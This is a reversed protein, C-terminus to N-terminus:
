RGLNAADVYVVLGTTSRDDDREGRVGREEDDLDHAAEQEARECQEGVAHV